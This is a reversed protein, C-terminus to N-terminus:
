LKVSEGLAFTKKSKGDFITVSSVGCVKSGKSSFHVGSYEPLAIFKFGKESILKRIISDNEPTYHPWISYGNFLDLGTTDSLGVTNEVTGFFEAFSMDTGMILAGASQGYVLKGSIIYKKLSNMFDARKMEDLLIFPNGGEIYVSDFKDLDEFSKGKLDTWMEIDAKVGFRIMNARMKEHSESFPRTRKAIPLYLIKAGVSILKAYYSGMTEDKIKGVGGSLILNM